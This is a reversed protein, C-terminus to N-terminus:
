FPTKEHHVAVTSTPITGKEREKERERERDFLSRRKPFNFFALQVRGTGKAENLLM